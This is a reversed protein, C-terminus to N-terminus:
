PGAVLPADLREILCRRLESVPIIRDLSGVARAREVTHVADFAQAVAGHQKLTTEERLRDLAARQQAARDPDREARLAAHAAQLRPDSETRARVERAFVATAAAGGGIVSAYSGELAVAYLGDNLARSFVVYAGGHYRSVVAFLLPGDFEVVARAIEAGYELQLSRMSEPSGDFGSLNALIVAPRNGSAARLARAVKKSSLPFLTGGSWQDPGDNARTGLRPVNQSEIGILCVAHGGLHADWVIATEAAAMAAWRELWGGDRDILAQMVPRMAFPRKRGPNVTDDFIEGVSRFGEPQDSPYPFDAVSRRAPDTTALRRPRPEGAARYCFRYHQLLVDYAESLDRAYYQAQGNPGMVREFGGIAVEDEAAVSGSAELALRGTLVMSAGPLMVLIGRTHLLMTALADFYSQAGVNVGAVILNIEGGAATFQVIRRVVRATADLNETGSQMAIRAGASTAIWELPVHRAAALELAAVIRDCEPAALAGMDHTPDSLVLVRTMGEPHKVTPTTILGFVIGCRNGGPARGGVSTASPPAAGDDLDFEEFRAAGTTFLRVAEYPYILGRRRAEALRRESDIIPRLPEHHPERWVADVRGGASPEAVLERAREAGGDPRDRLGLRVVIKELGLHHTTPSLERILRSFAEPQPSGRDAEAREMGGLHISPRVVLTIRNWHLRRWQDRESRLTRLLRVAEGFAHVFAPEYVNGAVGPLAARVDALIFIREDSPIRRSRGHFAYVGEAGPLRELGFEALRALGLRRATEAHLGLLDDRRTLGDGGDIYTVHACHGDPQLATCSLRRARPRRRTLLPQVLARLADAPLPENGTILLELLPPAPEAAADDCLADWASGIERAPALAARVIGHMGYDLGCRVVRATRASSAAHVPLVSSAGASQPALPAYERLILAQLAVERRTADGETAWAAFREFVEPPSDAFRALAQLDVGPADARALSALARELLATARAARLRIAPRESITYRAETAEDALADPVTGRLAICTGLADALETDDSLDVGAVALRTVFRLLDSVLRYRESRRAQAAFLRLLARELAEGPDLDAHGYHGLARRLLGLFRQPLGAGRTRTRRLYLRLWADNSPAVAGGAAPEPQRSFLVETDAFVGIAGRVEALEALFSVDLGGPLPAELVARLQADIDPRQDYGLLVRRLAAGFAGLSREREPLEAAAAARLDRRGADDFLPLLPDDWDPLVVRPANSSTTTHAGAPQIHALVAGAAVRENCRAPLAAVTGAFPAHFAVEVKMTELLGLRQGAEVRDGVAVALAIVVAPAAARVLGGTDRGILHPRGNVEMRMGDGSRAVTIRYRENGIVLRCAHPEPELLRAVCERGDLAIRYAWAGIALVHVRYAAGRHILEVSLGDSDPITHPAGSMAEAFFNLRATAREEQYVLIAAAILAQAGYRPPPLASLTRDLWDVDVGGRRLADTGLLDLLLGKNSAGGALVLRLEDLACSLRALAAQRTPAHAIVKAILQDFEAPLTTGIGVGCDTRVGPGGPLDFLVITGPAPIFGAAPDEACIRAEIAHGRQPPAAPPLPEGRALGLQLKVLDVGTLMETLGHEVQLRPNVELLFFSGDAALLFEVTAVGAYGAARALRIAAGRMAQDLAADLLPPPAEEIVKQHRRQVSCDRLGLALCRGQHDAAIQVEIHRARPVRTELFVTPDGFAHLAEASARALGDAVDDWREILRIGRGGGGAAAKILLPLGLRRAAAEGTANTVPGDSWPAVPVACSQALRKAGIKDGLARMARSSPGIFVLGRQELQEVFAADEALFGWGPWVSDARTARLAALVRARDLYALRPRTGRPGRRAAGLSLAEDAERVFPAGRDPETYLAIATLPLGREARLERIARLCRSAADGRNVIAIRRFSM